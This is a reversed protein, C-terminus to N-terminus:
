EEESDEMRLDERMLSVMETINKDQYQEIDM